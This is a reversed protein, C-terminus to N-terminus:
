DKAIHIPMVAKFDTRSCCNAMGSSRCCNVMDQSRDSNKKVCEQQFWGWFEKCVRETTKKKGDSLFFDLILPKWGHSLNTPWSILLPWFPCFIETVFFNM